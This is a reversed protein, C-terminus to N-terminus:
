GHFAEKRHGNGGLLRRVEIDRRVKELIRELAEVSRELRERTSTTELARQREELSFGEAAAIRFSLGEPELRRLGALDAPRGIMGALQVLLATGREALQSSEDGGSVASDAVPEVVAELWPRGRRVELIRFRKVGVTVIDMRGDPYRRLVRRVSATCGITEMREGDSLVVGFEREQEVCEGVMRNYREEFIHLPLSMGPLLVVSLPFLPLAAEDAM